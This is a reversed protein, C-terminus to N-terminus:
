RRRLARGLDVARVFGGDTDAHVASGRPVLAGKGLYDGPRCTFVLIQFNRAKEVLLARFWEMRNADSQVLQDDLVITSVLHEALCLRYLTSLQERTGV